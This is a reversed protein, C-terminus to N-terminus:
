HGAQDCQWIEVTCGSLPRGETDTVQGSLQVPSGATYRREGQSLLDADTDDPLRVPYYPGETQAPTPLLPRQRDARALSARTSAGLLLPLSALRSLRALTLRRTVPM